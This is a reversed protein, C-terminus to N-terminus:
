GSITFPSWHAYFALPDDDGPGRLADAEADGLAEGTLPRLHADGVEVCVSGFLCRRRDAPRASRGHRRRAVDGLAGVDPPHDVRADLLETAEVHHEVVGPEVLGLREEVDGLVDPLLDHVDVREAHQEAALLRRLRHDGLAGAALDDVRGRDGPALPERAEDGIARRLEGDHRDGLARARARAAWSMVTLAKAGPTTAVGSHSFSSLSRISM